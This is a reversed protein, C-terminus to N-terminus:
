SGVHSSALFFVGFYLVSAMNYFFFFETFIKFITWILFFDQFPTFHDARRAESHLISVYHPYPKNGSNGKILWYGRHFSKM